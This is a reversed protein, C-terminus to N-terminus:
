QSTPLYNYYNFTYYYYTFLYINAEGLSNKNFKYTWNIYLM